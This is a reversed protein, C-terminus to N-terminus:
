GRRTLPALRFATVDRSYLQEFDSAHTSLRVQVGVATEQRSQQHVARLEELGQKHRGSVLAKNGEIIYDADVRLDDSDPIVM